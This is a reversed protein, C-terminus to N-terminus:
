GVFFDEEAYRFPRDKVSGLISYGLTVPGVRGIFMTAILLVKGTASLGTTIGTSLGTNGLASVVEFLVQLPAGKETVSMIVMDAFLIVIFYMFVCSSKNVVRASIERECVDVEIRDKGKVHSVLNLAMVGLTSTKIGGGTSGPSAGIFMLMMLILLGSPTFGAIDMTNFGDTTSASVTQFFAEMLRSPYGQAEPWNETLLLMTTGGLVLAATVVLVMKSHISLKGRPAKLRTKKIFNYMDYLVIFGIGGALSIIDVTLNVLVSDRYKMLSDPFLSFGATCFASVSHFLGLYVSYSFGYEGTWYAALVAAGAVEFVLTFIMVAKFFRGLTQLDPGSLSERAIIQTTLATKKEFLHIFFIFFTMYGIGGIQFVILLVAQGFYNYWTGPDVVCLGTTSIGSTAMFMADIFNQWQGNKSSLPSSLLFAGAITIVAYGAVLAQFPNITRTNKKSKV